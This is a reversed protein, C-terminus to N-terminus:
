VGRLIAACIVYRLIDGLFVGEKGFYRGVANCRMTVCCRLEGHELLIPSSHSNGHKRLHPKLKGM